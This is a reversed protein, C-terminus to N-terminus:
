DLRNFLIKGTEDEIRLWDPFFLCGCHETFVVIFKEVSDHIFFAHHFTARSGDALSFNLGGSFDRAGLGRGRIDEPSRGLREALAVAYRDILQHWSARM